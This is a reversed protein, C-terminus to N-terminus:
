GKKPRNVRVKGLGVSQSYNCAWGVEDSTAGHCHEISSINYLFAGDTNSKRLFRTRRGQRYSMMSNLLYGTWHDHSPGYRRPLTVRVSERNLVSPFITLEKSPDFGECIRKSANFCCWSPTDVKLSSSSYKRPTTEELPSTLSNGFGHNGRSTNWTESIYLIM